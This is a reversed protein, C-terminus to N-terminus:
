IAEWRCTADGQTRCAVHIMAGDFTTLRRLVEAVAAGYFACAAGEPTARVLLDDAVTAVLRPQTTLVMGVARVARRAVLRGALRAVAVPLPLRAILLRGLRRGGDTFVLGADHRRAVLRVLAELESAPARDGKQVQRELRAIQAAVTSSRGLRKVALEQHVEDLEDPVHADLARVSELLALALM